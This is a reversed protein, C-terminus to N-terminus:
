VEEWDGCAVLSPALTRGSRNASPCRVAPLCSCPCCVYEVGVGSGCLFLVPLFPPFLVAVLAGPEELCGLPELMVLLLAPPLPETALQKGNLKITGKM